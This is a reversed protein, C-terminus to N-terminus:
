VCVEMDYAGMKSSTAWTVKPEIGGLSSDMDATNMGISIQPRAMSGAAVHHLCVAAILLHTLTASPM